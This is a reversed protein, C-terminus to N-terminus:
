TRLTHIGTQSLLKATEYLPLGMVGSYSGTISEIFIAARGQIAYGGAKNKPELTNWYQISEEKSIKRFTVKSSSIAQFQATDTILAIATIVHHSTDSLLELMNLFDDRNLPKGFIRNDLTVVTDAGLIPLQNNTDPMSQVSMAKDLANRLAYDQPSEDARLIEDINPDQYLYRINIQDLLQRRRPSSSALMLQANTQSAAQTRSHTDTMNM